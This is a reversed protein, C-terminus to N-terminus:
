FSEDRDEVIIESIPRGQSGVRQRINKPDLNEVQASEILERLHKRIPDSSSTEIGISETITTDDIIIRDGLELEAIWRDTELDEKLKLSEVKASHELEGVIVNLFVNAGQRVLSAEVLEQTTTDSERDGAHHAQNQTATRTM